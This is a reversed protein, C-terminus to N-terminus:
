DLGGGAKAGHSIALSGIPSAVSIAESTLTRKSPHILIGWILGYGRGVTMGFLLMQSARRSWLPPPSGGAGEIPGFSGLSGSVSTAGPGIGDAAPEAIGPGLCEGHPDAVPAPSTRPSGGLRLAM